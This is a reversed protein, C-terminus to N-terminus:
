QLLLLNLDDTTMSFYREIRVSATAEAVPKMAGEGIFATTAAVVVVVVVVWNFAALTASSSLLVLRDSKRLTAAVAEVAESAANKTLLWGRV